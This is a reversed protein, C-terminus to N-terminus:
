HHYLKNILYHFSIKPDESFKESQKGLWTEVLALLHTEKMRDAYKVLITPDQLLNDLRGALQQKVYSDMKFVLLMKNIKEERLDKQHFGSSSNLVEISLESSALLPIDEIVLQNQEKSYYYNGSIQKGDISISISKPEFISHFIIKISRNSPLFDTEGAVPYIVFQTKNDQWTQVMDRLAFVGNQYDCTEGDDEYFQYRNNEGPFIHIILKKPLSTGNMEPTAALPIIAGAKAFVPIQDLGGYIAYWGDGEYHDGTFFDFWDGEPLWIVQRSMRTDPDRPSTFPSAILESGFTYENPCQFANNNEPYLHYMPRIPLIGASYNQWAATYLYPILAHRLRFAESAFIETQADYAWPRREHFPNNTSHVRLIPSFVGYQVWRLYLEPEEIGGMHGGIDHSWWGYAVNAATATFYPLFQLMEWTVFTDGSFGIPYRHSGLGGYRSFIFPRKKGDRALDHFHLHNLWFLPDLGELASQTGQQWDLWWFDVGIEEFPHHLVTFYAEAFEPDSIQFPIPQQAKPDIGLEQAMKIYQKEHPHVGAAPHLNLAKKLGMSKLEDLFEQPDPFLLPNWTYGTWGSSKNGTDTIHWDMDVICVSLPVHHDVFDRMLALLEEQHYTWYRSWWNGLAFRPILPVQGSVKQFDTLCASFDRGYGFFYLDKASPHSQRPELWGDERFVLSQSDDVVSWGTMSLLGPDLPISGNVNDLTRVTGGLNTNNQQGYHWVFGTDRLEIKLTQQFFGTEQIQCTLKLFPTEISILNETVTKTYNPVPCQRHWFVQSARDEFKKAPDYEMRILRNTLVTFRFSGVQIIAEPNARPTFKTFLSLSM